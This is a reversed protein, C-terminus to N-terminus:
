HILNHAQVRPLMSRIPMDEQSVMPVQLRRAVVERDLECLFPPLLTMLVTPATIYSVAVAEAVAWIWVEVVEVM